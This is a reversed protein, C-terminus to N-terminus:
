KYEEWWDTERRYLIKIVLKVTDAFQQADDKDNEIAQGLSELGLAELASRSIVLWCNETTIWYGADKGILILYSGTTISIGAREGICVNNAGPRDDIEMLEEPRKIIIFDTTYQGWGEPLNKNIIEEGSMPIEM